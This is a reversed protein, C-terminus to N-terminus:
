TQRDEGALNHLKWLASLTEHWLGMEPAEKWRHEFVARWLRTAFPHPNNFRRRFPSLQFLDSPLFEGNEESIRTLNKEKLFGFFVQRRM